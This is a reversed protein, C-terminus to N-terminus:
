LENNLIQFRDQDRKTLLAVTSFLGVAVVMAAAETLYVSGPFTDLTTNYVITLIPSAILPIAAELCGLMTYVKGLETDPVVKSLLSRIVTSVQTSMLGLCNAFIYMNGSTSLAIGLIAAFSSCSALTGIVPDPVHLKYSLLPLLVLSSISQIITIMTTVKTFMSEDWDFMKRTFLYNVDASGNGVYILMITLLMLIVARTHGERRRVVAVMVEWIKTCLTVDEVVESEDSSCLVSQAVPKRSEDLCFLIFFFVAVLLCITTGFTGYFGWNEYVVASLFNGATYGGIIAVDLVAVRSTRTDTTTTDAIYSYVGILLTTTGGFLSYLASILNYEARASWFYVNAIYVFQAIIHGLIPVLLVPKRGHRDSWPGIILSVLICPLASLFTYYLNITTVEEQVEDNEKDHLNINDCVTDTFNLNVRCTKEILLNTRIVNHLGSSFAHIAIALEISFIRKLWKVVQGRPGVGGLDSSFAISLDAVETTSSSSSQDSMKFDPEKKQNIDLEPPHWYSVPYYESIRARV